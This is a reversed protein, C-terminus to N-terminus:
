APPANQGRRALENVYAASLTNAQVLAPIMKESTLAQLNAVTQKLEAVDARTASIIDDKTALEREHTEKLDTLTYYPVIYKRSLILIVFVALLGYQGVQLLQTIDVSSGGTEAASLFMLTKMPQGRNGVTREV